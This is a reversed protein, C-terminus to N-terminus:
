RLYVPVPKRILDGNPQVLDPLDLNSRTAPRNEELYRSSSSRSSRDEKGDDHPSHVPRRIHAYGLAPGGHNLKHITPSTSRNLEVTRRAFRRDDNMGPAIVSLYRRAHNVNDIAFIIQLSFM